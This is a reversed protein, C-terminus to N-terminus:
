PSSKDADLGVGLSSSWGKDATWSHKNLINLAVRWVPSREEMRLKLIRWATTVSGSIMSMNPVLLTIHLLIWVSSGCINPVVKYFKTAM